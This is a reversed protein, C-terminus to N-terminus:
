PQGGARWRDITPQYDLPQLLRGRRQCVLDAALDVASGRTIPHDGAVPGRIELGLGQDDWEASAYLRATRKACDVVLGMDSRERLRGGPWPQPKRLITVLTVAKVAGPEFAEPFAYGYYLKEDGSGLLYLDGGQNPQVADPPIRVTGQFMLALGAALIALTPM